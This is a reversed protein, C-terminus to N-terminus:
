KLEILCSKININNLQRKIEELPYDYITLILKRNVDVYIVYKSGKRRSTLYKIFTRVIGPYTDIIKDYLKRPTYSFAIVNEAMVGGNQLGNPGIYKEHKELPHSLLYLEDQNPISLAILKGPLRSKDILSEM